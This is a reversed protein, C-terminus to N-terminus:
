RLFDLLSQSVVRSASARMAELATQIKLIETATEDMDADEIDSLANQLSLTDRGLRESQDNIRAQRAGIEAQVGLAQTGADDLPKALAAIRNEAMKQSLAPDANLESGNIDKCQWAYSLVNAMDISNSFRFTDYEPDGANGIEVAVTTVGTLPDTSQTYSVPTGGPLAAPTSGSLSVSFAKSGQVNVPIAAGKDISVSTQGADGKYDYQNTAPNYAFANSDTKFGSFVYAQGLKSNSLDLLYDRLGAAQQAYVERNDDWHAGTSALDGLKQLAESVSNMVKDTFDLQVGAADINRRYQNNGSISVKYGMAKMMGVVDDSPKAIKKGTGLRNNLRSYNDLERLISRSLQDFIMFSTIRM